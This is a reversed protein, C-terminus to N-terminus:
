NCYILDDDGVYFELNSHRAHDQLCTCNYDFFGTGHGVSSFYLNHGFGEITMVQDPRPDIIEKFEQTDDIFGQIMEKTNNIAQESLEPEHDLSEDIDYDKTFYMAEIYSPYVREVTLPADYSHGTMGDFYIM